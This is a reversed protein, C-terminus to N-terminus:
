AIDPYVDIQKPESRLELYYFVPLAFAGFTMMFVIWAVKTGANMSKLRALHIAFMLVSVTTVICCIALTILLGTYNHLMETHVMFHDQFTRTHIEHRNIMLFYITWLTFCALPLFSLTKGYKKTTNEM